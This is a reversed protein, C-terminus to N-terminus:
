PIQYIQIDYLYNMLSLYVLWGCLKWWLRYISAIINFSNRECYGCSIFHIFGSILKIHHEKIPHHKSIHTCTLHMFTLHVLQIILGDCVWRFMVKDKSCVKLRRLVKLQFLERPLSLNYMYHSIMHITSTLYWIVVNFLKPENSLKKRFHSIVSVLQNSKSCVRLSKM